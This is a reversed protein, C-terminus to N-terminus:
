QVITNFSVEVDTSSKNSNVPDAAAKDPPNGPYHRLTVMLTGTATGTTTWISTIGLPIGNSDNNLNAVTINSGASPQYYFRHAQSESQVELTVDEAPTATKNLLQVTVNYTKNPALVITEKTPSVGGPGDPDDFKYMLTTGGGVPAFSLQMTTIVEEDNEEENDDKNCSTLFLSTMGVLILSFKLLQKKM